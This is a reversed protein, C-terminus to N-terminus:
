TASPRSVWADWCFLGVAVWIFLFCALRAHDLPEGLIYVGVLFVMSPLSFQLFGLASLSMNRAAVAFLILPIATTLGTSAVLLPVPMAHTLASPVPGAVVHLAYGLALPFLYLTEILMGTTARVPTVKRVLGYIAFSVALQLATGVMDLAGAVLLGIGVAAVGVAAWQRWRLREGLFVTGILVTLLPNIYYGLSTALVHAHVVATVYMLWNMGILLSSLLLRLMVTRQRLTMWLDPFGGTAALMVLCVPLTFVIRWAVLELPSVERLAHFLLPLFGWVLYAAVGAVLGQRAHHDPEHMTGARM